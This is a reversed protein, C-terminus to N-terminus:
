SSRGTRQRAGPPQMAGSAKAAMVRESIAARGPYDHAELVALEDIAGMAFLTDAEQIRSQRSTSLTSGAEINLQFRMPTRGTPSPLYFHYSHLALSSRNAQDGVIEVMRPTTYNECILSAMKKGASTFMREFNRVAMRIRVFSSEQLTEVVGQAPRGGAMMGRTIASLGSIREMEEVFWGIMQFMQPAIQPPQLWKAADVNAVNLRQGPRNTISTRSLNSRADEMFVPNGTLDINFLFQALLRNISLQSPILWEVISWGWFQGNAHPTFKDYPQQGHGWIDDAREDMLIRNGAIVVVRWREVVTEIDSNPLTAYEHERMWCELVTIGPEELDAAHDRSTQGPLGFRPSTAPSIAGMNAMPTSPASDNSDPAKDVDMQLGGKLVSSGPWRRDMEQVSMTRAEIFYLADDMSTAHPDPYFTFPDVRRIAADGLGGVLKADWTTKLIGTGYLLGDWVVQEAQAEFAQERLSAQMATELDHALTSYFEHYSSHPESGPSVELTPRQDTMWGVQSSLIPYIEPVEPAPLWSPRDALWTRNCLTRYNRNWQAVLPRRHTRARFFMIMCNNIISVEDQTPATLLRRRRTSSDDGFDPSLDDTEKKAEAKQAETGGEGNAVALASGIYDVMGTDSRTDSM